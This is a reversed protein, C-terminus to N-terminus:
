HRPPARPTNTPRQFLRRHPVTDKRRLKRANQSRASRRLFCAQKLRNEKTVCGAPPATPRPQQRGDDPHLTLADMRRGSLRDPGYWRRDQGLRFGRRDTQPTQDVPRPAATSRQIDRNRSSMPRSVPRGCTPSSSQADFGKDAGLTLQRSSGPSHRHIMDLAARGEARGDAQALDGQVILGSRQEMLAHGMCCLIAGTGPSKKYCRADPDTTSAHTTNSQKAGKFDVEAYRHPNTGRPM